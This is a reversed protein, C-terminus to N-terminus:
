ALSFSINEKYADYTFDQMLILARILLSLCVQRCAFEPKTKHTKCLPWAVTSINEFEISRLHLRYIGSLTTILCSDHVPKQITM